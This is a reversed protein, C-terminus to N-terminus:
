RLGWAGGEPRYEEGPCREQQLGAWGGREGPGDGGRWLRTSRVMPLSIRRSNNLVHIADTYM